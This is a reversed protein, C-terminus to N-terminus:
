VALKQTCICIYVCIPVYKFLVTEMVGLEILLVGLMCRACLENNQANIAPVSLSTRGKREVLRQYLVALVM